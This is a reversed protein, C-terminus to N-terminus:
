SWAGALFPDAEETVRVDLRSMELVPMDGLGLDVHTAILALGGAGVHDAILETILALAEADLS